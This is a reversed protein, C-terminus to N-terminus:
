QPVRVLLNGAEIQAALDNVINQSEEISGTRKIITEHVATAQKIVSEIKVCDPFPLISHIEALNKLEGGPLQLWM